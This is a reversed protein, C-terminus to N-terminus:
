IKSNEIKSNIVALMIYRYIVNKILIDLTPVLFIFFLVNRFLYKDCWMDKVVPHIYSKYQWCLFVISLTLLSIMVLASIVIHQFLIGTVLLAAVEGLNFFNMRHSEVQSQVESPYMMVLTAVLFIFFLVNRFLYKDCWM